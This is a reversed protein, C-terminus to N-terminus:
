KGENLDPRGLCQCWEERVKELVLEEGQGEGGGGGERSLQALAPVVLTNAVQIGDRVEGREFMKYAKSSVEQLAKCKLCHLLQLHQPQLGLRPVSKLGKHLHSAKLCLM